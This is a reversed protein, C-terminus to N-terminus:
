VFEKVQKRERRELARNLVLILPYILLAMLATYACEPLSIHIFYMYFHTRGKLLYIFVYNVIGYILDASLIVIIPLKVDEAYFIKSFVGSYYGLYMFLMAYFGIYSGSFIDMLLGAFFGILIGTKKGRMLGLSTTLILVLNPVVGGLNLYAFVTGQFVYLSILLVIYILIRIM